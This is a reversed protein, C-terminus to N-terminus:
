PGGRRDHEGQGAAVAATTWQRWVSRLLELLNGAFRPGDCLPSGAMRARLTGRLAALRPLDAALALALEVYQPLDAAITETLGVISLHSLSHRSAFNEGPCTIVPVGMWLAECTTLGGGYPFPDLAVDVRGYGALHEAHFTQGLMEIREPAIGQRAFAQRYRGRTSEDDGGGYKLLLRSQPLRRLIESWIEVVPPTIKALNNFSGFTVQGCQVAPLPGVEPATIPPDFCVYGDPM